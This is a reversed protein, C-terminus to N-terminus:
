ESLAQAVDLGIMLMPLKWRVGIGVSYELPTNWDNFANGTDFFVAGRFNRPFDREFEISGVLKNEGGGSTNGNPNDPTRSPDAPEALQARLRARQPRRRRLLAALRAARSFDDVWSTGLEGRLACTGRVTRIPWM